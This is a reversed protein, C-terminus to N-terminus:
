GGMRWKVFIVDEEVDVIRVGGDGLDMVGELFGGGEFIGENWISFKLTGKRGSTSFGLGEAEMNMVVVECQQHALQKCSKKTNFASCIISKRNDAM